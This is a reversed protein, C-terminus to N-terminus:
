ASSNATRTSRWPPPRTTPAAHTDALFHETREAVWRVPRKLKEAAVLVLPYERYLFIKTGFGGGVDPTVVRMRKPDIKLVYQCLLDRVGHSGQSGLTLTYRKTKADYEALAARTEMYSSVLRNNVITLSVTRAAKAFAAETKERNGQHATFAVNGPREPWVEPAGKRIASPADTVAPLM